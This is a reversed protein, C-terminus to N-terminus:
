VESFEDFRIPYPVPHPDLGAEALAERALQRLRQWSEGSRFEEICFIDPIFESAYAGSPYHYERTAYRKLTERFARAKEINPCFAEEWPGWFDLLAGYLSILPNFTADSHRWDDRSPIPFPLFRLQEEPELSLFSLLVWYVEDPEEPFGTADESNEM